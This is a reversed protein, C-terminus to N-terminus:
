PDASDGAEDMPSLLARREDSLDPSGAAPPEAAPPGAAEPRAERAARSFSRLNLALLAALVAAALWVGAALRWRGHRAQLQARAHDQLASLAAGIEESGAVGDAGQRVREVDLSHVRPRLESVKAELAALEAEIEGVPYAIERLKELARWSAAVESDLAEFLGQLARYPATRPDTEDGYKAYLDPGPRYIAHESHCQHCARQPRVALHLESFCEEDAPHCSGCREVAGALEPPGPRGDPGVPMGQHAHLFLRRDTESEIGPPWSDAPASRIADELWGLLKKGPPSEDGGHCDVCRAAAPFHVTSDSWELLQEEHCLGCSGGPLRGAGLGIPAVAPESEERAAPGSEAPPAVVREPCGLDSFRWTSGGFTWTRDALYGLAGLGLVAMLGLSALAAFLPRRRMRRENGRDLLPLLFVVLAALLALAVGPEASFYKMFQYLPLVYWEPKIGAPTEPGAPEGLESPWLAAATVLLAFGLNCAFLNRYVQDPFWARAGCREAAAAAGLELEERVTTGPARGRAAVLLLHYLAVLTLIAPLVLVHLTFFRGLTRGSVADGGFLLGKLAGGVLPVAGVFGSRIQTSWYGFQDWILSPGSLSLGLTTLLLLAGTFWTFERPRKHAGQWLVRLLHLLLVAVLFSAGWSHV